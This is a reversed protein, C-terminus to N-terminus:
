YLAPRRDVDLEKLDALLYDGKIMVIVIEEFTIPVYVATKARILRCFQLRVTPELRVGAISCNCSGIM